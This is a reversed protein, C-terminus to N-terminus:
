VYLGPWWLSKDLTQAETYDLPTENGGVRHEKVFANIHMLKKLGENHEKVFAHRSFGVVKRWKGVKLHVRQSFERM